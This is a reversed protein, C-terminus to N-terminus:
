ASTGALWDTTAAPPVPEVDTVVSVPHEHVATLLLVDQSVTVLPALPLPAPVTANLAAPLGLPVGRLPVSM